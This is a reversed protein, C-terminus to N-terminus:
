PAGEIINNTFIVRRDDTVGWPALRRTESSEPLLLVKGLQPHMDSFILAAIEGSEFRFEFFKVRSEEPRLIRNSQRTKRGEANYFVTHINLAGSNQRDLELLTGRGLVMLSPYFGCEKVRFNSSSEPLLKSSRFEKMGCEGATAVPLAELASQQRDSSAHELAHLEQNVPRYHSVLALGLLGLVAAGWASKLSRKRDKHTLLVVAMLGQPLSSIAHSWALWGPYDGSLIARADWLAYAV